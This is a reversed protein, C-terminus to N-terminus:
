MALVDFFRADIFNKGYPIDANAFFHTCESANESNFVDKSIILLMM